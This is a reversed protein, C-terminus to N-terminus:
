QEFCMDECVVRCPTSRGDGEVTCGPPPPECVALDEECAYASGAAGAACGGCAAIVPIAAGLGLGLTAASAAGATAVLGACRLCAFAAATLTLTCETSLMGSPDIANVPDSHVYGYLNGQGGDFLLPDKATWRGVEPDYDRAGFRVLKTQGDYLGGAFAFPQFGPTSDFTVNGWADYDIQQAVAGTAADVVLRVSGVQDTVFLYRVGNKIMGDPVHSETGYIFLSVLNGQDDLEAVPNLQDKYIWRQTLAGDVRRGVRRHMADIDYAVVTGTPLTVSLLNGLEDYDYTTQGDTNTKTLLQGSDRYAYDNSGYKILRDQADYTIPTVGLATLRNGNDDYSYAELTTSDRLVEVLRGEEDYAYDFTHSQGGITETRSAVRGLVDPTYSADYVATQTSQITTTETFVEGFPHYTFKKQLDGMSVTNLLGTDSYYEMTVDSASRIAGDAGYAYLLDGLLGAECLVEAPTL